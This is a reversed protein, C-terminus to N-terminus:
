GLDHKARFYAERSPDEFEFTYGMMIFYLVDAETLNYYDGSALPYAVGSPGVMYDSPNACRVSYYGSALPLDVAASRATAAPDFTRRKSGCRGCAM